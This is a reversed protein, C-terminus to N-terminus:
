MATAYLFWSFFETEFPANRCTLKSTEDFAHVDVHLNQCCTKEYSYKDTM